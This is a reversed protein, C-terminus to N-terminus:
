KNQKRLLQNMILNQHAECWIIGKEGYLNWKEKTEIATRYRFVCENVNIGSCYTNHATAPEQAGSTYVMTPQAWAHGIEHAMVILAVQSVTTQTPGAVALAKEISNKFIAIVSAKKLAADQVGGSPGTFGYPLDANISVLNGRAENPEVVTYSDDCLVVGNAYFAVIEDAPVGWGDLSNCSNLYSETISKMAENLAAMAADQIREPGTKQSGDYASEYIAKNLKLNGNNDFFKSAGVCYKITFDFDRRNVSQTAPLGNIINEKPDLTFADELSEELDGCNGVKASRLQDTLNPVSLINVKLSRRDSSYFSSSNLPDVYTDLSSVQFENEALVKFGYPSNNDPNELDILYLKYKERSWSPIKFKVVRTDQGCFVIEEPPNPASNDFTVYQEANGPNGYAGPNNKIENNVLIVRSKGPALLDKSAIKVHVYRVMKDNTNTGYDQSVSFVFDNNNGGQLDNNSKLVPKFNSNKPYSPNPLNGIPFPFKITTPCKYGGSSGGICADFNLDRLDEFTLPPNKSGRFNNIYTLGNFPETACHQTYGDKTLSNLLGDNADKLTKLYKVSCLLTVEDNVKKFLIDNDRKDDPHLGKKVTIDGTWIDYETAVFCDCNLDEWSEKSIRTQNGNSRYSVFVETNDNEKYPRYCIFYDNYGNPDNQVEEEDDNCSWLAVSFVILLFIRCKLIYYNMSM